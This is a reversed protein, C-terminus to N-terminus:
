AVQGLKKLRRLESEQQYNRCSLAAMSLEWATIASESACWAWHTGNGCANRKRRKYGPFTGQKILKDLPGTSKYGLREAIAQQGFYYPVAMISPSTCEQVVTTM